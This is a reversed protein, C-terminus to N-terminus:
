YLTWGVLPEAGIAQTKRPPELVTDPLSYLLRLSEKESQAFDDPTRIGTGRNMLTNPDPNHELGAAHGLEHLAVKFFLNNSLGPRLRMEESFDISMSTANYRSVVRATTEGLVSSSPFDLSETVPIDSSARDPLLVFIKYGVATNLRDVAKKLLDKQTKSLPHPGPSYALTAGPWRPSYTADHVVFEILPNYRIYPKKAQDVAEQTVIKATFSATASVPSDDLEAPFTGGGGNGIETDLDLPRAKRGPLDPADCGVALGLLAM